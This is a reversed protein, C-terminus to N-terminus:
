FLEYHLASFLCLWQGDFAFSLLRIRMMNSFCNIVYPLVYAYGDFASSLLCFRMM